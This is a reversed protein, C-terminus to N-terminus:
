RGTAAHRAQEAGALAEETIRRNPILVTAAVVGMIAFVSRVGLWEGLAGGIAAGLPMTGWAILRYSSNVRGLLHDPTVRQRFSVTTINWLMITLGGAFLSTAIVAVDATIAPTSVFAITGLTSVTLTTARGLRRQVREAVLGGTLGGAALVSFLLGFQPETLGMASGSGVAFLVLVAGTASNALNALGVMLAMTRLMPQGALFSFGQRVDARITTPPGARPPRFSGRLTLLGALALVWLAAPAALSLALAAAVLAGALPPGAFQQAGHEVALLRGNARDLASRPVLSPLISQAATDYFVEFVGTGAAAVYLLWLSGHDAAIAVAPVAVFGARAANALLMTRRRDLRDVLAGVQLSTALWPISRVLELGAVLAPSRTYHIALLPMALKFAGDALNSLGSAAVLTWFPRGLRSSAPTSPEM